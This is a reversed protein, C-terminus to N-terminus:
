RSRTYSWSFPAGSLSSGAFTKVENYVVGTQFEVAWDRGRIGAAFDFRAGTNFDIKTDPPVGAGRLTFPQQFSPGGGFYFYATPHNPTHPQGYYEQYSVIQASATVCTVALLAAAITITSSKTKM